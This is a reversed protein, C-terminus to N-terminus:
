DQTRRPSSSVQDMLVYAQRFDDALRHWDASDPRLRYAHRLFNSPGTNEDLRRILYGIAHLFDERSCAPAYLLMHPSMEVLARRQHNAMGELIEFQVMELCGAEEAWIYAIAIDFLNHSAVGVRISDVLDPQ